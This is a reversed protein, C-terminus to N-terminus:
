QEERLYSRILEMRKYYPPHDYFLLEAWRSPRSEALNQDTLKTLMAGFAEPNDTAALAYRDAAMELKRSYANALPAIILFVAALVLILLPFAAIDSIGYFDLRPVAWKLTIHVVYFGLLIFASQAIILRAIDRNHQHGLEHAMIVEIEEPSYRQLVTDSVAIRRTGGWGMLMANGTSTKSSFGIQFVDKVQTHCHEALDLLRQRLEDNNIPELKYFLPLILVPALRTMVVSLFAVFAFSLLWWTQPFADLFLYVAVVLGTGLSLGLGMEKAQDGLWSRRSQHSLGYRHPLIYSHYVSLPASIVSYGLMLILFYLAARAPQSFGLLNRLGGSAGSLLIALFFIAALAIEFLLLRRSLRTYERAQKQKQPDLEQESM